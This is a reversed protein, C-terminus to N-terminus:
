LTKVSRGKMTMQINGDRPDIVISTISMTCDYPDRTGYVVLSKNILDTFHSFLQDQNATSTPQLDLTASYHYEHYRSVTIEKEDYVHLQYGNIIAQNVLGFAALFKYLEPM